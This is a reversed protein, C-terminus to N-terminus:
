TPQISLGKEIQAAETMWIVNSSHRQEQAGFARAM